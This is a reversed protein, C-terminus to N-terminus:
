SKQLLAAQEAHFHAVRSPGPLIQPEGVHTDPTPSVETVRDGNYGEYNLGRQDSRLLLHSPQRAIRDEVEFGGSRRGDSAVYRYELGQLRSGFRDRLSLYEPRVHANWDYTSCYVSCAIPFVLASAIIDAIQLPVRSDSHGFM